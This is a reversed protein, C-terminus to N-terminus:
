SLDFGAGSKIAYLLKEKMQSFTRYPPLKLLNMCTASTPLRDTAHPDLMGGAMQVCLPPLLYQFGLLPARSCSTVFKLFQSQEGATFSVLVQWFTQVVPHDQHYGGAYQVHRQMDELNIREESGSILMQLEEENFMQVWPPAILDFFGSLFAQVCRSNQQNLRYDAVRHIYEIVNENTVPLDSGGPKLEIERTLGLVTDAVTFNLALDAVDGPYERLKMLHTYVEPDLTPLDNIDCHPSRFKKLFFPAFPLELLIGEYMAKGLMRGLFELMQLAGQSEMLAAPNPYLQHSTTAKFYGYRTDFGQKILQEMFDKFLGGGDVGAEALGQENIFQIRVRGKLSEGPRNLNAFGDELVADRHITIFSHGMHFESMATEMDGYHERDMAVVHQFVRARDQFPILAPAITLVRWGRDVSGSTLSSTLQGGLRQAVEDFFRESVINEAHFAHVPCFSRRSNRDYLQGFLRGADQCFDAQLSAYQPSTGVKSSDSWLASWLSTKLAVVFSTQPYQPNYLEVHALPRQHVYFDDLHATTLYSSFVPCCVSWPLMWVPVDPSGAVIPGAKTATSTSTAVTSAGLTCCHKLYTFWLRPIMDTFAGLKLKLRQGHSRLGFLQRILMCILVAGERTAELQEPPTPAAFPLLLRMLHSLLHMGQSSSILDLQRVVESPPASGSSGLLYGPGPGALQAPASTIPADTVELEMPSPLWSNLPLLLLLNSLLRCVRKAMAGDKETKTFDHLVEVLNALLALGCDAAILGEDETRIVAALSSADLDGLAQLVLRCLRSAIPRLSKCTQWLSPSYMLAQPGKHILSSPGLPDPSKLSLFRVCLQTVLTEACSRTPRGEEVLQQVLAHLSSFMGNRALHVILMAAAKPGEAPGLTRTWADPAILLTLTDVLIAAPANSPTLSRPATLASRWTHRCHCLVELVIQLLQKVRYLDTNLMGGKDDAKTSPLLVQLGGTATSQELILHCVATLIEVDDVSHPNLFAILERLFAPNSSCCRSQVQSWYKQMWEDRVQSRLERRCQLSRWCAQIVVASKTELKFRKRREREIRTRELVQERTEEVKSKGRLDVKRKPGAEGTFFM